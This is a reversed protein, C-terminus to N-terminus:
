PMWQHRFKTQSASPLALATRIRAISGVAPRAAIRRRRTRILVGVHDLPREPASVAARHLDFHAPAREITAADLLCVPQRLAYGRGPSAEVEIGAARLAAIRKWIAARTLGARRALTDLPKVRGEYVIPLQGFAYLDMQGAPATPTRMKSLAWGGFLVVILVPVIVAWQNNVVPVERRGKKGTSAAATSSSPLLVAGM